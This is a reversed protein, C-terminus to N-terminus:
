TCRGLCGKSTPTQKGWSTSILKAGFDDTPDFAIGSKYEATATEEPYQMLTTLFAPKEADM